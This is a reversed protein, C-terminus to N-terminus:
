FQPLITPKMEEVNAYRMYDALQLNLPLQHFTDMLWDCLQTITEDELYLKALTEAQSSIIKANTLTM